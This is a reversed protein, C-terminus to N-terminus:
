YSFAFGKSFQTILDKTIKNNQTDLVLGDIQAVPAIMKTTSTIFAERANKLEDLSINREETKYNGKATVLVHKRTIGRLINNLPTIIEGKKTVIFINSRPCESVLGNNHYLIDDAEKEALLSQLWIAMLYDITKVQPLQRQYPYTVLKLGGQKVEASPKIYDQQAVIFNPTGLHYGDESYGGTLTLKIGSDSINNRKILGSIIENLENQSYPVVLRMQKASYHFRELHDNLFVPKGAVVKFFDFVGYGRQISLDRYHITANEEPIFHDNIFAFRM